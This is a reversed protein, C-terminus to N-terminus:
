KPHRHSIRIALPRSEEALFQNDETVVARFTQRRTIRPDFHATCARNFRAVEISRGETYLHVPRQFRGKCPTVWATIGARQNHPVAGHNAHIGLYAGLRAKSAEGEASPPLPCVTSPNAGALRSVQGDGSVTYLRGCADEGFSNLNTM